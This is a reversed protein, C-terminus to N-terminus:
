SRFIEDFGGVAGFDDAPASCAFSLAVDTSRESSGDDAVIVEFGWPDIDQETMTELTKCLDDFRNYTPIIASAQPIGASDIM